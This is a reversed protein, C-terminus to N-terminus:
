PRRVLSYRQEIEELFKVFETEHGPSQIQFYLEWLRDHEHKADPLFLAPLSVALESMEPSREFLGGVLDPAHRAMNALLRVPLHVLVLNVICFLLYGLRQAFRRIPYILVFVSVAVLAVSLLSANPGVTGVCVNSAKLWLAENDFNTYCQFVGPYLWNTFALLAYLLALRLLLSLTMLLSNWGFFMAFAITLNKFGVSKVGYGWVVTHARRMRPWLPHSPSLVDKPNQNMALPM